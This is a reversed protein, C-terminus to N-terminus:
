LWGSSSSGQGQKGTYGVSNWSIRDANCLKFDKLHNRRQLFDGRSKHGGSFFGSYQSECEPPRNMVM